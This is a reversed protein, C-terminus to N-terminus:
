CPWCGGHVGGHPALAASGAEFCLIAAGEGISVVKLGHAQHAPASMVSAVFADIDERTKAM